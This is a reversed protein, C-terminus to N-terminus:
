DGALGTVLPNSKLLQKARFFRIRAQQPSCKTLSAIESYSMEEFYRLQVVERYQKKLQKIAASLNEAIERRIVLDVIDHDGEARELDRGRYLVSLEPEQIRHENKFHEHIKSQVVRYIWPWFSEPEELRGVFRLTTLLVEQLLDEALNSDLITRQLYPSLRRCIKEALLSLSDQNGSKAQAVLQLYDNERIMPSRENGNITSLHTVTKNRGQGKEM